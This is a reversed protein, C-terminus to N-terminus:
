AVSWIERMRYRRLRARDARTVEGEHWHVNTAKQEAVAPHEPKAEFIKLPDSYALLQSLYFVIHFHCGDRKNM